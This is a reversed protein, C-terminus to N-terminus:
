EFLKGIDSLVDEPDGEEENALDEGDSSKDVNEPAKDFEGEENIEQSQEELNKVDKAPPLEEDSIGDLGQENSEGEPFESKSLNDTPTGLDKVQSPSDQVDQAQDNINDVSPETASFKAKVKGFFESASKIGSPLKVFLVDVVFFGAMAYGIYKMIKDVVPLNVTPPTRPTKGPQTQDSPPKGIRGMISATKNAYDPDDATFTITGFFEAGVYPDDKSPMSIHNFTIKGSHTTTGFDDPQWQLIGQSYQVQNLEWDLKDQGFGVKDDGYVVLVPATNSTTSTANSATSATSGDSQTSSDSFTLVAAGYIGSWYGLKQDRMKIFSAKVQAANCAYNKTKLFQDAADVPNGNTANTLATQWDALLTSDELLAQVFKDSDANPESQQLHEQYWSSNSLTLVSSANTYYNHNALFNDLVTLGEQYTKDNTPDLKQQVNNILSTWQQKLKQDVDLQKLFLVAYAQFVDQQSPSSDATTTTTSDTAM